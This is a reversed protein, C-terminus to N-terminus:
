RSSSAMVIVEGVGTLGSRWRICCSIIIRLSEESQSPKSQDFRPLWTRDIVTNYYDRDDGRRIQAGTRRIFIEIHALREVPTRAFSTSSSPPANDVQDQNSSM